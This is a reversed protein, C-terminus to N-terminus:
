FMVNLYQVPTCLQIGEKTGVITRVRVGDIIQEPINEADVQQYAPEIQKLKRPLNVWMQIGTSM